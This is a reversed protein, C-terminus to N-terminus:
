QWDAKVSVKLAAPTPKSNNTWAPYSILQWAGKMGTKAEYRSVWKSGQPSAVAGFFAYPPNTLTLPRLNTTICSLCVVLNTPAPPLLRVSVTLNTGARSVNTYTRSAGGWYVNYNTIVNTGTSRDWALMVLNSPNADWNTFVAENSYDSELGDKDQATAAFFWITRNTDVPLLRLVLKPDTPMPPLQPFKDLRLNTPAKPALLIGALTLAALGSIIALKYNM